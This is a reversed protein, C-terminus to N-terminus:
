EFKHHSQDVSVVQVLLRIPLCLVVVFESFIDNVDDELDLINQVWDSPFSLNPESLPCLLSDIGSFWDPSVPHDISLSFSNETSEYDCYFLNLNLNNNNKHNYEIIIGFNFTSLPKL